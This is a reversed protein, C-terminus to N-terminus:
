TNEYIFPNLFDLDGYCLFDCVQNHNIGVAEGIVIIKGHNKIWFDFIYNM